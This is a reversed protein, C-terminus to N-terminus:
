ARTRPASKRGAGRFHKDLKTKSGAVSRFTTDEEHAQDQTQQRILNREIQRRNERTPVYTPTAGSGSEDAGFLAPAAALGKNKKYDSENNTTMTLQTHREM